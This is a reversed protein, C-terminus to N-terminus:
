ATEVLWAELERATLRGSRSRVVREGNMLLVTPASRIEYRAARKPDCCCDVVECGLGLNIAATQVLQIVAPCSRCGHRTFILFHRKQM